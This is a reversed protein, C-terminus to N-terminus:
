KNKKHGAPLLEGAMAASIVLIAGILAPPSLYEKLLVAAWLVATAPDIYSLLAVTQGKLKMMSGFYLAYCIGTHVIGIVALLLWEKAGCSCLSAFEGGFLCFPLLSLSAFLLQWVTREYASIDKLKKNLIMVSAYLLAAGLGFLVCSLSAGKGSELVGSVLVMGILAVGVALLKVPSLKEKLLLPSFLIVFIPATYYCLTGVSVSIDVAEFLLLWNFGICAGSLLLVPLNKKLAGFSFKKKTLLMFVTLFLVGLIGRILAVLAPPLPIYHKLVGVTGFVLVALLLQFVAKLETLATTKM